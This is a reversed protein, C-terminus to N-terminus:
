VKDDAVLNVAWSKTRKMFFGLACKLIGMCNVLIYITVIPLGTFRTLIFALSVYFVWLFGSDFIFTIFTKGGTRLTFYCCNIYADIPMYVSMVYLFSTALHKVTDTTNYINALMPAFIALLGAVVICMIVSFFTIQKNEEIAEEIKGAGLRQGTLIAITSGSAFLACFFLNCITSSINTASVVELGRVSYCQNLTAMGASWLVENILLPSGKKLIQKFLTGPIRFSRYIGKIFTFKRKRTHTYIILIFLEVFRAIVTAIAAGIVGLKPAGFKGFILIYNGVLNIFVAIISAAMPLVRDSTERLTGSYVQMLAFPLMQIMMVHLYNFSYNFTNQLSLGENGEHLFANILTGGAFLYILGFLVVSGVAFLIKIRMTHRIGEDDGKGYFQSTYIGPGALAGFICLNFVFLLQNAIAVGSMPETGVQGVMINDLLSVFNTIVNQLLVPAMVAFVRKYFQKTGILSGLKM